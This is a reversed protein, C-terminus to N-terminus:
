RGQLTQVFQSAASGVGRAVHGAGNSYRVVLYLATLGATYYIVRRGM